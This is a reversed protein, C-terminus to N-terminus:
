HHVLNAVYRTEESHQSTRRYGGCHLLQDQLGYNGTLGAAQLAMWGLPGVRYNVNVQIANTLSNCGDYLPNSIGGAANAGGYLWVKVPLGSAPSGSKSAPVWVDLYLSCEILQPSSSALKPSHM